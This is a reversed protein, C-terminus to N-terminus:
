GLREMLIFQLENLPNGQRTVCIAYEDIELTPPSGVGLKAGMSLLVRKDATPVYSPVDVMLRIAEHKEIKQMSVIADKPFRDPMSIIAKPKM